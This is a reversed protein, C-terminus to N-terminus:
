EHIAITSPGLMFWQDILCSIRDPLGSWRYEEVQARSRRGLRSRFVEFPTMARLVVEEHPYRGLEPHGNTIVEGDMEVELPFPVDLQALFVKASATVIANERNGAFDLAHRLDHEHTHCDGAPWTAGTEAIWRAFPELKAEWAVLLEEVGGEAHRAVQLSTWEASPAGEMRNELVDDTLGVVHSVVDRASWQPACPVPRTWDEDDVKRALAIFSHAAQVYLEDPSPGSM